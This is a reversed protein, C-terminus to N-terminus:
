EFQDESDPPVTDCEDQVVQKQFEAAAESVQSWSPVASAIVAFAGMLIMLKQKKM